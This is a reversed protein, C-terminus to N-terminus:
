AQAREEARLEALHTDDGRRLLRGQGAAPDWDVETLSANTVLWQRWAGPSQGHLLALFTSIVGGHTVVAITQSPHASAIRDITRRVRAAFGLRSEGGPWSFEEVDPDDDLALLDGHSERIEDITRAELEGFHMERLDPDFVVAHGTLRTIAGATLRARILPSAYIAAVQGHAANVHDALMLVQRQGRASLHSDTWGALRAALNDETEAHRVLLLTAAHTAPM